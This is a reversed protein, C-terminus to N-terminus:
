SSGHGRWGQGAGGPLAKGGGPDLKPGENAVVGCFMALSAQKFLACIGVSCLWLKTLAETPLSM